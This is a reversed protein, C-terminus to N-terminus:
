VEAAFAPALSSIWGREPLVTPDGSRVKERRQLNEALYIEAFGGAVSGHLFHRSALQCEWKESASEGEGIKKILRYLPQGCPERSDRAVVEGQENRVLLEFPLSSVTSFRFDSAESNM